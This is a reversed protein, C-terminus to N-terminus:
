LHPMNKQEQRDRMKYSEEQREALRHSAKRALTNLRSRIDCWLRKSHQQQGFNDALTTTLRALFCVRGITESYKLQRERM